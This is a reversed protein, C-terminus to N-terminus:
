GGERGGTPEYGFYRGSKHRGFPPRANDHMIRMFVNPDFSDSPSIADDAEIDIREKIGQAIVSFSDSDLESPKKPHVEGADKRSQEYRTLLKRKEIADENDGAILPTVPEKRNQLRSAERWNWIKADPYIWGKNIWTETLKRLHDKSAIEWPLLVPKLPRTDGKRKLEEYEDLTRVLSLDPEKRSM